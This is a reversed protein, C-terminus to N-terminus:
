VWKVTLGNTIMAMAVRPLDTLQELQNRQRDTIEGALLVIEPAWVDAAGTVPRPALRTRRPRCPQRDLEAQHTPGRAPRRLTTASAAPKCRTARPFASPSRCTM